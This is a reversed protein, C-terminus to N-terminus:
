WRGFEEKMQKFSFNEDEIAKRIKNERKIQEILIPEFDSFLDQDVVIVGDRSAFAYDNPKIKIGCINIPTQYDTLAWYDIADIPNSGRCFTPFNLKDILDIDRLNGDTIFGRVGYKQYIKSTIDGSHAVADDNSQLFVIKKDLNEKNYIKLRIDDLDEYEEKSVSVVEGYTTFIKGHIINKYGCLPKINIFFNESKQGIIRMSDYVIGLYLEADINEIANM